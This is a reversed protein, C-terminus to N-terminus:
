RYQKSSVPPTSMGMEMNMDEAWLLYEMLGLGYTCQYDWFNQFGPRDRLDGLSLKWDWITSNNDGELM